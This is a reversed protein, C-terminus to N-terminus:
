TRPALLWLDSEKHGVGVYIEHNDRSLAFGTVTQGNPLEFITDLEEEKTDFVALKQPFAMVMRTSDRMWRPVFEMPGTVSIHGKKKSSVSYTTLSKNPAGDLDSGILKDGDPSWASFHCEGDAGLLRPEEGLTMIMATMPNGREFVISRGDPSWSPLLDYRGPEPHTIEEASTGDVNMRWITWREHSRTSQFVIEKGDPSFSANRDKVGPPTLL